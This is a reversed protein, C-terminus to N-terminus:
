KTKVGYKENPNFRNMNLETYKRLQMLASSSPTLAGADAGADAGAAAAAAERAQESSGCSTFLIVNPMLMLNPDKSLLMFIVLLIQLMLMLVLVLMLMLLIVMLLAAGAPDGAGAGPGIGKSALFDILKPDM